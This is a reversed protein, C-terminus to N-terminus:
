GITISFWWISFPTEFLHCGGFINHRAAISMIFFSRSITLVPPLNMGLQFEIEFFTQSPALTTPHLDQWRERSM